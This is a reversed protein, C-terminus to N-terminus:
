KKEFYDEVDSDKDIFKSICYATQRNCPKRKNKIYGITIQAVGITEAIAKNKFLNLLRLGEDNIVYMSEVEERYDKTILIKYNKILEEDYEILKVAIDLLQETKRLKKRMNLALRGLEEYTLVNYPNKRKREM